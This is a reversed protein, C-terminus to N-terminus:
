SLIVVPKAKWVLKNYGEFNKSLDKKNPNSAQRYPMVTWNVRGSHSGRDIECRRGQILVSVKVIRINM